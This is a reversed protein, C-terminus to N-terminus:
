RHSGFWSLHREIYDCMQSPTRAVHFGGPYRVMQAEKGLKLLGQFIEEGQGVPCRLDGEWHLVQVPTTVNPLYTIPSHERYYEPADWPSGGSEFENFHPIDTTGYMSVLNSVPASICAAKFRETHGVVWTTMFGGYSYGAVYMRDPDVRGQEVLADVAGMIDLYDEGGWDQTCAMAFAEGFSQSGRPNPLLVAYGESALAQYLAMMSGQPHWGHPGGHIELVLPLSEGETRHKPYLVFSSIETGDHARHTIRELTSLEVEDALEVNANSIVMEKSGAIDSCYLEPFQSPWSAVFAVTGAKCNVTGIQRDGGLVFSPVAGDGSVRVSYLSQVGRDVILFIVEDEDRWSFPRGLSPLLGWVPRDLSKTLAVPDGVGNSSVVYLHSNRSSDGPQNAHGVFCVRDGGPSFLPSGCTSVPGSIARPDGGEVGVIWISRQLVSDRTASRDSAFVLSDGSPSWNPDVDDWDGFTVQREIGSSVDVVFIHQRRDDFRGINDFRNYLSTWVTPASKEVASRESFPVWEGTKASVALASGDPSWTFSSVGHPLATLQRAEGGNSPLLYVQREKGRDSLFALFKGDPSWRPSTDKPGFTAQRASGDSGTGTVWISTEVRDETESAEGVVYAVLTGDFSLDPDSLSKIRWFDKVEFARKSMTM